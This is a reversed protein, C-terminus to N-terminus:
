AATKFQQVFSELETATEALDRVLLSIHESSSSTEQTSAAVEETAASTGEAVAAVDNIGQQTERTSTTVRDMTEGISLAQAGMQDVARAIAEFSARTSQMLAAGSETRSASEEVLEVTKGTEHQIEAILGAISEAAAQSEDALKRVEEAVVAFGRGHEGARAAEIAANLALLNTQGAIGSITEVIAGITAAKEHLVHIAHSVELSSRTVTDMAQNALEVQDVGELAVTHTEDAVAVAQQAIALGEDVTAAVDDILGRAGEVARVQREAGEAVEGIAETIEHIAAGFAGSSESVGRAGDSVSTAASRIHTVLDNLQAAMADFQVGLEGLEDRTDVEARARLDRQEIRKAAGVLRRLAGAVSLYFGIFLYLALVGFCISIWIVKSRAANLRDARARLLADLKPLSAQELTAAAALARGSDRHAADAGANTIPRTLGATAEALLPALGRDAAAQLPELERQLTGDLTNRFATAYGTDLSVRNATVIGQATSVAIKRSITDGGRTSAAIAELAAIQGFGDFMAPLNVLTANMVWYSDLDPDLILQSANGINIIFPELGGALLTTYAAFTRDPNTPATAVLTEIQQRYASWDGAITHDRGTVPDRYALQKGVAQVATDTAALHVALTRKAAALEHDAGPARVALRVAATRTSVLDAVVRAAPEIVVIGTRESAAFDIPASQAGAYSWVAYGLPAVLVTGVLCFKWSFRLRGMLRGAPRFFLEIGATRKNV